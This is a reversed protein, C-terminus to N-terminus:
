QYVKHKASSLSSPDRFLQCIMVEVDGCIVKLKCLRLNADRSPCGIDIMSGTDEFFSKNDLFSVRSDIVIQIKTFKFMYICDVYPTVM